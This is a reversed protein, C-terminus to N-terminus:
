YTTCTSAFLSHIPDAVTGERKTADVKLHIRVSVIYVGRGDGSHKGYGTEEGICIHM